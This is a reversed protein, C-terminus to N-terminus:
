NKGFTRAWGDQFARSNYKAPGKGADSVDEVAIKDSSGDIPEFEVLGDEVDHFTGLQSGLPGPRGPTSPTSIVIDSKEGETCVQHVLGKGDMTKGLPRLLIRKKM